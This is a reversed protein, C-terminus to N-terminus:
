ILLIIGLIIVIIGLILTAKFFNVKQAFQLLARISIFGVVASTLAGVLFTSTIILGDDIIVLAIQALFIIPISMLFSLYFTDKLSYKRALLAAITLGSRSFGPLAAFGQAIGVIISDFYSLRNLSNIIKLERSKKQLFAVIILFLGIIITFPAEPLEVWFLFFIFPVAIIGTVITSLVLFSFLKKDESSDKKFISSLIRIIDKWFYVIVALLTGGHLWISIKLADVHAIDFFLRSSLFVMAQSSIPLWETIGQIIGLVIAQFYDM